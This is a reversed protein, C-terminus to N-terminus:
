AYLGTGRAANDTVALMAEWVDTCADHYKEGRSQWVRSKFNRYDLSDIQATMFENLQDRTVFTRYPYDCNKSRHIESGALEALLQLSQEDRARATLKGPEQKNDVVSIFGDQTFVWM